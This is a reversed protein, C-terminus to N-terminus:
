FWVTCDCVSAGSSPSRHVAHCNNGSSSSWVHWELSLPLQMNRQGTILLSQTSTFCYYLETCLFNLHTLSLISGLSGAGLLPTRLVGSQTTPTWFRLHTPTFIISHSAHGLLPQTGLGGTSCGLLIPFFRQYPWLLPPWYTATRNLKCSGRVCLGKLLTRPTSTHSSTGTTYHNDDDSISVAVCTWIRSSVSQM